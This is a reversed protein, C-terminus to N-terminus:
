EVNVFDSIAREANVFDYCKYIKMFQLNTMVSMAVSCGFSVFFFFFSIARPRLLFTGNQVAIMTKEKMDWLAGVMIVDFPM